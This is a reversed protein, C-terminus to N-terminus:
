NIPFEYLLLRYILCMRLQVYYYNKTITFYLLFIYIIVQLISETVSGFLLKIWRVVTQQQLANNSGIGTLLECILDVAISTLILHSDM